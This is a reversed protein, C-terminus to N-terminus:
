CKGVAKANVPETIPRQLDQTLVSPTEPHTKCLNFTLVGSQTTASINGMEQPIEWTM